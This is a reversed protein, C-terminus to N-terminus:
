PFGSSCFSLAPLTETISSGGKGVLVCVWLRYSYADYQLLTCLLACNLKVRNTKDNIKWCSLIKKFGANCFLHVINLLIKSCVITLTPASMCYRHDSKDNINELIIKYLRTLLFSLHLSSHLNLTPRNPGTKVARREVSSYIQSDALVSVLCSLSIVDYVVPGASMVSTAINNQMYTCQRHIGAHWNTHTLFQPWM